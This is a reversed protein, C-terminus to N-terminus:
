KDHKGGYTEIWVKVAPAILA